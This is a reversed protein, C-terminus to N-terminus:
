NPRYWTVSPEKSNRHALQWQPKAVVRFMERVCLLCHHEILRTEWRWTLLAPGPRANPTRNRMWERQQGWRPADACHHHAPETRGRHSSPLHLSRQKVTPLKRKAKCNLPFNKCCYHLFSFYTGMKQTTTQRDKQIFLMKSEVSPKTFRRGGEGPINSGLFERESAM